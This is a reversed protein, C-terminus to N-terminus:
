LAEQVWGNVVAAADAKWRLDVTGPQVPDGFDVEGSAGAALSVVKLINTSGVSITVIRAGVDTNHLYLKRILGSNGAVPIVTATTTLSILSSIPGARRRDDYGAARDVLWGHLILTRSAGGIVDGAVSVRVTHPGPGLDDAILFLSEFDSYTVITAAHRRNAVERVAYPVGDVWLTFPPLSASNNRRFRVGIRRGYLTQELWAGSQAGATVAPVVMSMVQQTGDTNTSSQALTATATGIVGTQYQTNQGGLPLKVPGQGLLKAHLVGDDSGDDHGGPIRDIQGGLLLTASM